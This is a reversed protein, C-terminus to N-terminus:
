ASRERDVVGTARDFVARWVIAMEVVGCLWATGMVLLAADRISGAMRWADHRFKRVREPAAWPAIRDTNDAYVM